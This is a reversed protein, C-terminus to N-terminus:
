ADALKELCYGYGYVAIIVYENEPRLMLKTRLWSVHTDVTRSPMGSTQHWISELIQTRSLPLGAQRFLLYALAFERHTLAIANGRLTVTCKATDFEYPGFRVPVRAKPWQARRLLSSVRARLVEPTRSKLVYDDAGADLAATEDTAKHPEGILLVPLGTGCHARVWKLATMADSDSDLGILILLDFPESELGATLLGLRRFRHCVYGDDRLTRAVFAAHRSTDEFIAVSTARDVLAEENDSFRSDRRPKLSKLKTM